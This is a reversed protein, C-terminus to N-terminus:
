ESRLSSDAQFCIRGHRGTTSGIRPPRWLLALWMLVLGVTTAVWGIILVRAGATLPPLHRVGDITTGYADRAQDFGAHVSAVLVLLTVIMAAWTGPWRHRAHGGGSAALRSAHLWTGTFIMACLVLGFVFWIAKSWVGGFDGFHLPDATESWRWYLPLDSADQDHLLTGNATDIVVFNARSRVLVHEADGEVYLAGPYGYDLGIMRIHLEPRLERVRAILTDLPLAAADPASGEPVQVVASAGSGAHSFKGDGLDVRGQEFLYWVGTVAMLAVFWLSWLGAIKHSEALVVRANGRRFSVFRTWWRRYFFLAALLSVLLALSFATVLYLGIGGLGFLSMHFNRIFRQFDVFGSEGTVAATYPDVHVKLTREGNVDVVAMATSVEYLPARIWAVSAGPYAREVSAVMEGWSARSGRPEVRLDPNALWDLEHSIVAWTGSFCIVFLMLGTIVGTFSHIRFWTRNPLM